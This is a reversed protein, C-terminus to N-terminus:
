QAETRGDVMRISRRCYEAAEPSHTVLLTTVKLEENFRKFMEMVVRGNEQDLSGTPEDLLLIGPRSALARAIAVRQQQGFSLQAPRHNARGDLGVEKLWRLVEDRPPRQNAIIWSLAINDYASLTPLLNFRQFVVGVNSRRFEARKSPNWASIPQGLVTVDGSTPHSLGAIQQLLTTKGCGSPGTIAVFEGSHIQFSVGRLAHVEEDGLQYKVKLNVVEVAPINSASQQSSSIASSMASGAKRADTSNEGTRTESM